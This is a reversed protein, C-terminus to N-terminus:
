SSMAESLLLKKPESVQVVDSKFSGTREATVNVASLEEAPETQGPTQANVQSVSFALASPLTPFLFQRKFINLIPVRRFVAMPQWMPWDILGLM